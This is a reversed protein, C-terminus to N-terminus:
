VSFGIEEVVGAEVYGIGRYVKNSDPNKMDAYLMPTRGEDLAMRSMQAVLASAYGKKREEPPTYVSGIRAHRLSRHVVAAMCVTKGEANWLFLDGSKIRKAASALADERNTEVHFCDMNFGYIFGAATETRGEGAKEMRGPVNSPMKVAPCAYAMLDFNLKDSAGCRQCYAESFLRANEPAAVIGPLQLKAEKFCESLEHIVAAAYAAGCCEDIWLWMNMGPNELAIAGGDEAQLSVACEVESIRYLLDFRVEDKIFRQQALTEKQFPVFM